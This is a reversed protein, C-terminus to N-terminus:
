KDWRQWNLDCNQGVPNKSSYVLGDSDKKAKDWPSIPADYFVFSLAQVGASDGAEHSYFEIEKAAPFVTFMGKPEHTLLGWPVVGSNHLEWTGTHLGKFKLTVTYAQNWNPTSLDTLVILFNM